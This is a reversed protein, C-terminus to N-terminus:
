PLCATVDAAKGADRELIAVRAGEALFAELVARGIGGGAGAILARRGALQGTM